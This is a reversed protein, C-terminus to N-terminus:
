EIEMQPETEYRILDMIHGVTEEVEYSGYQAHIVTCKLSESWEVSQIFDVRIFLPGNLKIFNM